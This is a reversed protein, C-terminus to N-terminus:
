NNAKRETGEQGVGFVIADHTRDSGTIHIEDITEHQCLYDGVDAGGYAMEMFGDQILAEFAREIFPGLYENVPNMKLLCVQGEVFLKHVVDLPGISSVNGAGLVLSVRGSRKEIDSRYFEAINESLNARTVGPEMWIEAHFGAFLLKDTLHQPIVEVAIQGEGVDRIKGAPIQVRGQKEITELTEIMLRITRAQVVPGGLYDEAAMASNPPVGKAQIAAAVQEHAVAQTGALAAKLYGIRKGLPM